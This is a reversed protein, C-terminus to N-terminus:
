ERAGQEEVGAAIMHFLRYGRTLCQEWTMGTIEMISAKAHNRKRRCTEFIMKGDKDMILYFYLSRITRKGKDNFDFEPM